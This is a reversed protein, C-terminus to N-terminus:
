ISSCPSYLLINPSLQCSSRDIAYNCDLEIIQPVANNVLWMKADLPSAETYQSLYIAVVGAVHPAAMSTGSITKTAENSSGIWTSKILL